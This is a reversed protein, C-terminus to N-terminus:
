LRFKQKQKRMGNVIPGEIALTEKQKAERVVQFDTDCRPIFCITM